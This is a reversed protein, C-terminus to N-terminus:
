SAWGSSRFLLLAGTYLIRLRARYFLLPSLVGLGLVKCRGRIPDDPFIWWLVGEFGSWCNISCVM